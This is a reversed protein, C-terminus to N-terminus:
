GRETHTPLRPVTFFGDRWEPAIYSPPIMLEDAGAADPRLPGAPASAHRFAPVDAVDLQFLEDVRKLIDDLDRALRELEADTFRLRALDAARDLEERAPTM